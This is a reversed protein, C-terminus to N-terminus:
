RPRTAANAGVPFLSARAIVLVPVSLFVGFGGGIAGGAFIGFLVWLPHLSIGNSMLKPWIGYDQVVRFVVLFLALAPLNSYGTLLSVGLITAIEVIPGIMPVFECFFAIAALLLAYRVGMVTLAVGLVALATCCLVLLARMYQVLLDHIEAITREVRARKPADPILALFADRLERGDKLMFFSLIPIVILYILNASAAVLALGVRSGASAIDGVRQDMSGRALDLLPAIAPHDSRLQALVAPVDPPHAVFYRAERSARSGVGIAIAVLTGIVLLYTLALAPVRRQPPFRRSIRSFLPDLLYSLLLAIAFVVLTGRIAYIASLLLLTAAVTWTIRAAKPDLGLM